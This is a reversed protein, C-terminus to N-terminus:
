LLTRGSRSQSEWTTGHIVWIGEAGVAEDSGGCAGTGHVEGWYFCIENM